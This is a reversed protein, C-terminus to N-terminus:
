VAKLRCAQDEAYLAHGGRAPYANLSLYVALNVALSYRTYDRICGERGSFIM